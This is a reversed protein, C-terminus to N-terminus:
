APLEISIITGANIKSNIDINGDLNEVQRKVMKLGLGAYNLSAKGVNFGTGNDEVILNLGGEHVNIQLNLKSARAHKVVNLLLEQIIRFLKIELSNDLRKETGSGTISIEINECNLLMETSNRLAKILGKQVILGSYRENAMNRIKLISEDILRESSKFVFNDKENEFANFNNKLAAMLNTFDADLNNLVFLREKVQDELLGTASKLEQEKFQSILQEDKMENYLKMLEDQQSRYKKILFIV